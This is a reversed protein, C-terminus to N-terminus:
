GNTIGKIAWMVAEELKTKALRIARIDANSEEDDYVSFEAWLEEAFDKINSIDVTEEPTLQRYNKRFISM